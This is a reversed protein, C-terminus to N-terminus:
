KEERVTFEFARGAPVLGFESEVITIVISSKRFELTGSMALDDVFFSIEGDEVRAVADFSSIRYLGFSFWIMDGAIDKVILDDLKYEDTYWIGLYKQNSFASPAKKSNSVNARISVEDTESVIGPNMNKLIFSYINKEDHMVYDYSFYVGKKTLPLKDIRMGVYEPALERISGDVSVLRFATGEKLFYLKAYQEAEIDAVRLSGIENRIQLGYEEALEDFTARRALLKKAEAGTLGRSPRSAQTTAVVSTSQMGTTTDTQTTEDAAPNKNCAGLVIAMVLFLTLLAKKM